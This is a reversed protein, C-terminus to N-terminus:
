RRSGVSLYKKFNGAETKAPKLQEEHLIDALNELKIAKQDFSFVQEKRKKYEDKSKGLKGTTYYKEKKMLRNKSISCFFHKPMSLM